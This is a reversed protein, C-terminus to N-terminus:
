KWPIGAEELAAQSGPDGARANVIMETLGPDTRGNIAWTRVGDADSVEGTFGPGGAGSGSGSPGGGNRESEQFAEMKKQEAQAKALAQDETLATVPEDAAIAKENEAFIVRSREM